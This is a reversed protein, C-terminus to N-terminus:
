LSVKASWVCPDVMRLFTLNESKAKKEQAARWFDTM